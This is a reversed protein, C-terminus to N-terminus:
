QLSACGGDNAALVLMHHREEAELRFRRMGNREAVILFPSRVAFVGTEDILVLVSQEVQRQRPKKTLMLDVIRPRSDRCEPGNADVDAGFRDAL